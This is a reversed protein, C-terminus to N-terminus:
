TRRTRRPPFCYLLSTITSLMADQSKSFSVIGFKEHCSAVPPSVDVVYSCPVKNVIQSIIFNEYKISRERERNANPYLIVEQVV